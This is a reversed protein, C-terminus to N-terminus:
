LVILIKLRQESMLSLNGCSKDLGILVEPVGYMLVQSYLVKKFKKEPPPPSLM